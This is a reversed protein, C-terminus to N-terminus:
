DITAAHDNTMGHCKPAILSMWEKNIPARLGKDFEVPQYVL